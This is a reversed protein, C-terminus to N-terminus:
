KFIPIEKFEKRPNNWNELYEIEDQELKTKLEGRYIKIGQVASDQSSERIATGNKDLFVPKDVPEGNANLVRRKEFPTDRLGEAYDFLLAASTYREFVGRNLTKVVWTRPHYDITMSLQCFRFIKEEQEEGIRLSSIRLTEKPCKLGALKFESKNVAENFGDLIWGPWQIPINKVVNFRWLTIPKDPVDDLFDGATNVFPKEEADFLESIRETVADLTYTPPRKRPDPEKEWNDSYNVTVKWAYIQNEDREFDTDDVFYRKGDRGRKTPHENGWLWEPYKAVIAFQDDAHEIPGGGDPNGCIVTWVESFSNVSGTRGKVEYSLHRERVAM